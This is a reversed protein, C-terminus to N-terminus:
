ITLIDLSKLTKLHGSKIMLRGINVYSPKRPRFEGNDEDVEEFSSEEDNSNNSDSPGKDPQPNRTPDEVVDDVGLSIYEEINSVNDDCQLAKSSSPPTQVRTTSKIHAMELTRNPEVQM